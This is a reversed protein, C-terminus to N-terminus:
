KDLLAKNLCINNVACKYVGAIVMKLSISITLLQSNICEQIHLINFFLGM